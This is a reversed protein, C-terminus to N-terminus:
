PAEYAQVRPALRVTAEGPAVGPVIAYGDDDFAVPRATGDSEVLTATEAAPLRAGPAAALQLWAIDDHSPGAPMPLGDLARRAM